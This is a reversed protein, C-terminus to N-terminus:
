NAKCCYGCGAADVSVVMDNFYFPISQEHWTITQNGWEVPMDVHTYNDIGFAFENQYVNIKRKGINSGYTNGNGIMGVQMPQVEIPFSDINEFSNNEFSLIKSFKHTNRFATGAINKFTCNNVAISKQYSPTFLVQASTSSGYQLAYKQSPDSGAGNFVCYEFVGEAYDTIFIGAWSGKANEVEGRFTIPKAATGRAIIKDQSIFGAGAKFLITVGADILLEKPMTAYALCGTEVIYDVDINPNDILHAPIDTSCNLLIPDKSTDPNKKCSVIACICASVLLLQLRMFDFSPCFYKGHLM